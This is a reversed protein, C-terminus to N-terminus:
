AQIEAKWIPVDTKLQDMFESLFAFAANRHRSTVDIRIATEGVAVWGVRHIVRAAVLDHRSAIDRAIRQMEKKAMEEYAEYRIGSISAGDEEGRIIGEFRAFAGVGSVVGPSSAPPLPSPSFLIELEM